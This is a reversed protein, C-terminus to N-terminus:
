DFLLQQSVTEIRAQLKIKALPLHPLRVWQQGDRETVALLASVFCDCENIGVDKTNINTTAPCAKLM